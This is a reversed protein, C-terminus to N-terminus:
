RLFRFFNDLHVINEYKAKMKKTQETPNIIFHYIRDFLISMQYKDAKKDQGSLFVEKIAKDKMGKDLLLVLLQYISRETRQLKSTDRPARIKPQFCVDLFERACERWKEQSTNLVDVLRNSIGFKEFFRNDKFTMEFRYIFSDNIEKKIDDPLQKLLDENKKNTIEKTKDYFKIFPKTPTATERRGTTIGFGLKKSDFIKFDNSYGNYREKLDQNYEKIKPLDNYDFKFDCKMDLDKTYTEQIIKNVDGSLYGLEIIYNLVDLYDKESIGNFYNDSVKSPFYILVREIRRNPLDKILRGLHVKHSKYKLKLSTAKFEDVIDGTDLDMTAYNSPINVADFVSADCYFKGSDVFFQNYPIKQSLNTM